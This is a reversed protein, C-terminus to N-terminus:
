SDWAMTSTVMQKAPPDLLVDIWLISKLLLRVEDWSKLKMSQLVTALAPRFWVQDAEDLVSIRGIIYLWLVIQAPIVDSGENLLFLATRLYETLNQYRTRVDCWQLFINSAFALLALRIVEDMTGADFCLNVLRYHISIMVEQYLDEDITRKCQTAINAARTFESLDDWTLRLREDLGSLFPKIDWVSNQDRTSVGSNFLRRKPAIYSGWSISDSLFLPKYGTSLAVALDARLIKAQLKKNLRFALIGGRLAVIQHLGKMHKSAADFDGLSIAATILGVIVLITSDCISAEDEGSALRQQLIGLAKIFHILASQSSEKQGQIQFDQYTKAIFLTFHFCAVDSVIPELWSNKARDSTLSFEPLSTARRFKWIIDLLAPSLEPPCAICSFEHGVRAPVSLQNEKLSSESGLYTGNIWSAPRPPPRKRNKGRMAHSRIFKRGNEVSQNTPTTVIFPSTDDAPTLALM